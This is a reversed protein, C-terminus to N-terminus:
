NQWAHHSPPANRHSRSRQNFKKQFAYDSPLHLSCLIALTLGLAAMVQGLRRRGFNSFDKRASVLGGVIAAIGCLIGIVAHSFTQGDLFGQIMFGVVLALLAIVRM